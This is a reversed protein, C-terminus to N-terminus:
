LNSGRSAKGEARPVTHDAARKASISEYRAKYKKGRMVSYVVAAVLCVVFLVAMVVISLTCSPQALLAM